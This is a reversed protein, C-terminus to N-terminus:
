QAAFSVSSITKCSGDPPTYLFSTMLSLCIPRRSDQEAVRRVTAPIELQQLISAVNVVNAVMQNEALRLEAVAAVLALALRGQHGVLASTHPQLPTLLPVIMLAILSFPRNVSSSTLFCVLAADEQPEQVPSTSCISAEVM